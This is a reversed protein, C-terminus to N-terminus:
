TTLSFPKETFGYYEQHMLKRDREARPLRAVPSSESWSTRPRRPPERPDRREADASHGPRDEAPKGDRQPFDRGDGPLDGLFPVKRQERRM